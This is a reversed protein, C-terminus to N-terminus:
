SCSISMRMGVIPKILRDIGSRRVAVLAAMPIADFPRVEEAKAGNESDNAALHEGAIVHVSINGSSRVLEHV